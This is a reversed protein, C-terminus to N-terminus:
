GEGEKEIRTLERLGFKHLLDMLCELCYCRDCDKTQLRMWTTVPGHQQCRYEPVAVSPTDDQKIDENM